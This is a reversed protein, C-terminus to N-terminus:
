EYQQSEERVNDSNVQNSAQDPTARSYFSDSPYRSDSHRKSRRGEESAIMPGLVDRYYRRNAEEQPRRKEREKEEKIRRKEIWIKKTLKKREKPKDTNEQPLDVKRTRDPPIVGPRMAGRPLEGPPLKTTEPQQNHAPLLETTEPQQNHSSPTDNRRFADISQTVDNYRGVVPVGYFAFGDPAEIYETKSQTNDKESLGEPAKGPRNGRKKQLKNPRRKPSDNGPNNNSSDKSFFNRFVDFKGRPPAHSVEGLRNDGEGQLRRPGQREPRQDM